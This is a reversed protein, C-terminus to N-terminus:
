YFISEPYLRPGTRQVQEGISLVLEIKKTEIVETRPHAPEEPRPYVNTYAPLCDCKKEIEYSILKM